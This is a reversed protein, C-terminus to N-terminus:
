EDDDDTQDERGRKLIGIIKDAYKDITKALKPFIYKDLKLLNTRLDFARNSFMKDIRKIYLEIMQDRLADPAKNLESLAFDTLSDWCEHVDSSNKYKDIRHVGELLIFTAVEVVNDRGFLDEFFIRWKVNREFNGNEEVDSYVTNFLNNLYYGIKYRDIYKAEPISSMAAVTIYRPLRADKALQFAERKVIKRVRKLLKAIMNNSEDIKDNIDRIKEREISRDKKMKDLEKLAENNREIALNCVTMLFTAHSRNFASYGEYEIADIMSEMVMPRTFERYLNAVIETLNPVKEPQFLWKIFDRDDLLTVFFKRRKKRTLRKFGILIDMIEEHDFM